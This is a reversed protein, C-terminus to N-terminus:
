GVFRFEKRAPDIFLGQVVRSPSDQDESITVEWENVFEMGAQDAALQSQDIIAHLENLTLPTFGARDREAKDM